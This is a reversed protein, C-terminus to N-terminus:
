LYDFIEKLFREPYEGDFKKILSVGEEREIDKIRKADAKKQAEIADSRTKEINEITLYHTSKGSGSFSPSDFNFKLESASASFCLAIVSVFIVSKLM